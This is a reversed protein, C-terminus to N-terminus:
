TAMKMAVVQDYFGEPYDTNGGNIVSATFEGVSTSNQSELYKTNAEEISTGKSISDAMTNFQKKIEEIRDDSLAVSEGADNTDTLYGNISKFVVFHKSFYDKLADEAVPQLGNAGYYAELLLERRAENGSGEDADAQQDGAGYLLHQFSGSNILGHQLPQRASRKLTISREAALTNVAVYEKCLSITNERADGPYQEPSRKVLDYYYTYIESSVQAGGIHLATEARWLSDSAYYILNAGDCRVSNTEYCGGIIRRGPRRQASEKM